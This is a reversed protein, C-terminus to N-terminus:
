LCPVMRFPSGCATFIMHCKLCGASAPFCNHSSSKLGLACALMLLTSHGDSYHRLFDASCVKFEPSMTTGFAGDAQVGNVKQAAGNTKTSPAASGAKGAKPGAYDWFM